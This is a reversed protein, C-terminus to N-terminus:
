AASVTLVGNCEHRAHLLACHFFWRQMGTVAMDAPPAYSQMDWNSGQEIFAHMDATTLFTMNTSAWGPVWVLPVGRFKPVGGAGADADDLSGVIRHVAMLQKRVYGMITSTTFAIDPNRGGNTAAITDLFTDITDLGTAAFSAITGTQNRFPTYTTRNLGHCTTTPSTSVIHQIGAIEDQTGEVVDTNTSLADTELRSITARTNQELQSKLLDYQKGGGANHLNQDRAIAVFTTYQAWPSFIKTGGQYIGTALEQVGRYTQVNSATEFNLVMEVQTGSATERKPRRSTPIPFKPREGAGDDGPPDGFLLGSFPNDTYGQPILVKNKYLNLTALVPPTQIVTGSVPTYSPM